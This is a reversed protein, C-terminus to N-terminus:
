PPYRPVWLRPLAYYAVFHKPSNFILMSGSIGSYTLREFQQQIWPCALSLRAFQFMKTALPFSLLLSERLLPSRFPLLRFRSFPTTPSCYLRRAALRLLLISCGVSTSSDASSNHNPTFHWEFGSSAPEGRFANLRLLQSSM